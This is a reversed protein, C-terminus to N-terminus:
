VFKENYSANSDNIWNSSTDPVTLKSFTSGFLMYIYCLIMTESCKESSNRKM